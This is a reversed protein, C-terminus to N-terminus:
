TQWSYEGTQLASINRQRLQNGLKTLSTAVSQDYITDGIQVVLGGIISADVVFSPRLSMGLSQQVDKLVDNKKEDTLPVATTFLAKHIGDLEDALRSTAKAVAALIGLRGHRALIHLSHTTTPQLRGKALRNIVEEKADTTVKPSAFVELAQPIKPLVDHALMNLQSVVEKRCGAADAAEVIAKAYVHAVQETGIDVENTSSSENM